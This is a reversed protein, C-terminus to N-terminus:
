KEPIMPKRGIKREKILSLTNLKDKEPMKLWTQIETLTRGCGQCILRQPDIRCIKVCPSPVM